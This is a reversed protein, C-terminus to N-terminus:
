SRAKKSEERPKRGSLAIVLIVALSLLWVGPISLFSTIEGLFYPIDKGAFESLHSVINFALLIVFWGLILFWKTRKTPTKNMVRSETGTIFDLVHTVFGFHM